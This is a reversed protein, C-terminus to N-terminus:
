DGEEAAGVYDVGYLRFEVAKRAREDEELATVSSADHLSRFVHLVAGDALRVEVAQSADTVTVIAREGDPSIDIKGAHDSFLDRFPGVTKGTPFLAQEVGSVLDVAM